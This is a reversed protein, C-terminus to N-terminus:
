HQPQSRMGDPRAADTRQNRRKWEGRAERLQVRFEERPPEGHTSEPSCMYQAAKGFRQLETDTMRDLRTRQQALNIGEDHQNIM